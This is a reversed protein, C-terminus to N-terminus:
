QRLNFDVRQRVRVAVPIGQLMAPKFKWNQITIRIPQEFMKHPVQTFEIDQVNGSRDILFIIEVTGEIRARKAQEPYTLATRSIAMPPEDTEGEEYITEVFGTGESEVETGNGGLSLDPSFQSSSTKGPYASQQSQNSVTRIHKPEVAPKPPQPISAQMLLKLNSKKDNTNQHLNSHFLRNVIPFFSFLLVAAVIALIIKFPIILITAVRKNM